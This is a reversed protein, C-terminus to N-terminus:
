LSHYATEALVRPPSVNLRNHVFTHVFQTVSWPRERQPLHGCGPLLLRTADWMNDLFFEMTGAPLFCDALGWILGAPVPLKHLDEPTLFDDRTFTPIFHCVADCTFRAQFSRQSLYFPAPVYGFMQRVIRRITPLDPQIVANVFPAWSYYGSLPAGGPNILVVGRVYETISAALRVALWGGLSSGVILVPQRIVESILVRLIGHLESMTAYRRGPPYASLGFGPLDIAYMPGLTSFSSMQWFWTLANDGLGHILLVPIATDANASGPHYYLHIPVHGSRVTQSTIGQHLLMQRYLGDILPLVTHSLPDVFHQLLAGGRRIISTRM